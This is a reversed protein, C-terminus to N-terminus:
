AARIEELLVAGDTVAVILSFARLEPDAPAITITFRIRASTAQYLEAVVGVSEIRDDKRLESAIQGEYSLLDRQTTGRHLFEAIDLGLDPDDPHTGRPTSLRHYSDQAISFVSDAETEVLLPDLDDVCVLDIGYGAAEDPSEVLPALQAIENAVFDLFDQTAM